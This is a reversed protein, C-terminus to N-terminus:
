RMIKRTATNGDIDTARVIYIGRNLPMLSLTNASTQAVLAGSMNYVSIRAAQAGSLSVTSGDYRITLPSSTIQGVAADGATVFCKAVKTGLTATLDAVGNGVAKITVLAALGMVEVNEVTIVEENSSTVTVGELSGNSACLTITITKGPDITEETNAFFIEKTDTEFYLLPMAADTWPATADTGYVYGIGEFFSQTLENAEISAGERTTADASEITAGNVLMGALAYCNEIGKERASPTGLEDGTFGLIRHVAAVKGTTNNPDDININVNAVNGSFIKTTSSYETAVNGVIGGTSYCAQNYDENEPATATIEGEAYCNKVAIRNSSGIIGGISNEATLAVNAHCDKVSGESSYGSSQGLIGGLYYRASANISAFCRAINSTNGMNGVIGGVTSSEPNNSEMRWVGCDSVNSYFSINGAIGGITTAYTTNWVFYPDFVYINQLDAAAVNGAVAGAGSAADTPAIRPNRMVLNRVYAKDTENRGSVSSFLGCYDAAGSADMNYLTYGGGDFGGQLEIPTWAGSVGMDIDNVMRYHAAPEAGIQRLDGVTSVLYPNAETGEGGAFRTFPLNYFDLRFNDNSTNRYYVFLVPSTTGLDILTGGYYSGIVDDGKFECISTGDENAITLINDIVDSDTRKVKKIFVYEHEDDTDFIYPDLYETMIIPTFLEGNKGINFRVYHDLTLDKNFWGIVSIVNGEADSEGQGMGIVYKYSGEAPYRDINSSIMKGDLTATIVQALKCSPVDIMEFVQEGSSLTKLFAFQEDFGKISGLQMWDGVNDTITKIKEGAQNYVDFRYIYSDNSLDYDYGTMIINLDDSGDFMGRSLDYNSFIGFGYMTPMFGENVIPVRVQTVREYSQNYVETVFYNDETYTMMGQQPDYSEVFPKEYHSFVYHFQGNLYQMHFIKGDSYQVNDNPCTFTHEAVIPETTGDSYTSKRYVTIESMAETVGNITRKVTTGIALREKRDWDNTGTSLLTASDVNTFRTVEEGKSNYVIIDSSAVGPQLIKHTLVMFESTSTTKDFFSKTIKGFPQIQNVKDTDPISVTVDCVKQNNSDYLTIVSSGYYYPNATSMTFSQTYHWTTGDPSELLGWGSVDSLSSAPEASVPNATASVGVKLAARESFANGRSVASFPHVGGRLQEVRQATLAQVSMTTAILAILLLYIKKMM